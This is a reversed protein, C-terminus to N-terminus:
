ASDRAPRTEVERRAHSECPMSGTAPLRGGRPDAGDGRRPRLEAIKAPRYRRRLWWVALLDAPNPWPNGAPPQGLQFRVPTEGVRFGRMAALWPLFRATGRGSELGAVAERRAAWFLCDTSSVVPGLLWREPLSVFQQWAHAWGVPKQRGFVVDTRSLEAILHPILQIPYEKGAGPGGGARRPRRCNRGDLRSRNRGRSGADARAFICASELLEGLAARTPAASAQDICIVEYPLALLDLVRRLEPLQRALESGANRQPILVSYRIMALM